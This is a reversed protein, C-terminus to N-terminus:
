LKSMENKIKKEKADFIEMTQLVLLLCHNFVKIFEINTKGSLKVILKLHKRLEEWKNM